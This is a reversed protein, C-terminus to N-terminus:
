NEKENIKYQEFLHRQPAFERFYKLEAQLRAVIADEKKAFQGLEISKNNVMIRTRWNNNRRNWSVGVIGSTNNKSISCNRNNDIRAAKRLNEKRNDLPNRNIHDYWKEGVIVWSM